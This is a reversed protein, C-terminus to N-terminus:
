SCVEKTTQPTGPLTKEFRQSWYHGISQYKKKKPKVQNKKKKRKQKIKKGRVGSGIGAFGLGVLLVGL